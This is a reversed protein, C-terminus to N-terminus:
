TREHSSNEKVDAYFLRHVLWEKKTGLNCPPKGRNVELNVNM